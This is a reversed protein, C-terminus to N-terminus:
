PEAPIFPILIRSARDGGTHIIHNGKNDFGIYTYKDAKEDYAASASSGEPPRNFAEMGSAPDYGFIAVQLKEGSHFRLSTPWLGIQIEVPVGPTLKEVTDYTYFPEEPRSRQTDLKRLSARHMCTPGSYNYGIADHYLYKGDSDLKSVSVKIDMDDSIDSHAWLILNMYGIIETEETIDLTFKLMGKRDDGRYSITTEETPKELTLRMGDADLYYTRLQQQSLPFDSVIRNVTDRGGPDLVSIRIKPTNEWGNNIGKMYHDFFRRLEQENYPDYQDCWEQTNHVRLWKETTGLNKWARLTGQTHNESTWSAVVYAPCIIKKVDAVKDLWYGDLLPYRVVAEFIDETESTGFAFLHAGPYNPIGGNFMEDRYLDSEGEWPAICALHPPQLAAAHWQAVCLWSNGVMACKGNCWPQAALWEIADYDDEAEQVGLYPAKGQSMGSGRIDLNCVAYGSHVWVAPDCGEWSELGSTNAKPVGMRPHPGDMFWDLTVYSGGKGFTSSNILVPVPEETVPRFIDAYLLIGDRMPIAVDREFIIDCLYPMHGEAFVDGKKLLTQGPCFGRYHAACSGDESIIPPAKKFPVPQNPYEKVPM